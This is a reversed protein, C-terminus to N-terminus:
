GGPRFTKEYIRYTKVIKGGMGEMAKNMATNSELIWGMEGGTQPTAAAMAFHEAYLGAAVGTHQYEPKVGLAFVRVTNIEKRKRLAKLWGLPLLRGDLHKLVQNYDPLTLACGVIEGDGNEAMMAWNPDLVPRLDKAYQVLEADTLPVFAWNKEWASNYVDMFRKVENKFDRKSMHRIRIGHEPELKEALQWIIPHVKERDQIYLQWKYLDMAKALGWEELLKGYYPHHWLELIQPPREFGDVLLGCEHNTSFDMPGVMRDRGRERLWAEATDLLAKAVQPDDETEFFGFQGWETGHVENLLHDVHATIRGVPEGNRYALFYEAEAHEFFPNKSRDLFKMRDHILPPVWLPENRYLRWPLKVFSKLESKTKVPRVDVSM